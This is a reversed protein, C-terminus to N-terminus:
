RRSALHGTLEAALEEGYNLAVFRRGVEEDSASPHRQRLGQRSLEIVSQSLSFALALRRAPGAQRLMELQLRETEPDTDDFLSRM